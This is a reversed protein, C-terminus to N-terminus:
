KERQKADELEANAGDHETNGSKLQKELNAVHANAQEVTKMEMTIKKELDDAEENLNIIRNIYGISDNFNRQGKFLLAFRLSYYLQKVWNIAEKNKDKRVIKKSILAEVREADDNNVVEEVANLYKGNRKRACTIADDIFCKKYDYNVPYAVRFGHIDGLLGIRDM